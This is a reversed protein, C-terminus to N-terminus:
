TCYVIYSFSKIFYVEHHWIDLDILENVTKTELDVQASIEAATQNPLSIPEIEPIKDKLRPVFFTGVSYSIHPFCMFVMLTDLCAFTYM